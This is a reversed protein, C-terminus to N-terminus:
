YERGGESASMISDRTFALAESMESLLRDIEAAMTDESADAELSETSPPIVPPFRRRRSRQASSSTSSTSQQKDRHGRHSRSISGRRGDLTDDHTPLLPGKYAIATPRSRTTTHHQHHQLPHSPPPPPPPQPPTQPPAQSLQNMQYQQQQQQEAVAPFTWAMPDSPQAEERKTVTDTEESDDQMIAVCDDDPDFDLVSGDNNNDNDHMLRDDEDVVVVDEEEEREPQEEEPVMSPFTWTMTPPRPGKTSPQYDEYQADDEAQAQEDEWPTDRFDADQNDILISERMRGVSRNAKITDGTMLTIPPQPDPVVGQAYHASDFAGLNLNMFTSVVSSRDVNSQQAFDIERPRQQVPVFDNKTEYSYARRSTDFLSALAEAGREAREMLNEQDDPSLPSVPASLEANSSLQQEAEFPDRSVLAHEPSDDPDEKISSLMVALQDM